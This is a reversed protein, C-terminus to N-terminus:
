GRALLGGLSELAATVGLCSGVGLAALALAFESSWRAMTSPYGDDSPCPSPSRARQPSLAGTRCCPSRSRSAACPSESGPQKSATPTCCPSLLNQMCFVPSEEPVNCVGRGAEEAVRVEGQGDLDLPPLDPLTSGRSVMSGLRPSLLPSSLPSSLLMDHFSSSSASPVLRGMGGPSLSQSGWRLRCIAAGPLVFMYAVAGFGIGVGVIASISPFACCIGAPAGVLLAMVALHGPLSTGRLADSLPVPLTEILHGKLAHVNLPTSVTLSCAVLAQALLASADGRPYASLINEPTSVGHTLFGCAGVLAYLLSVSTISRLVVKNVRQAKACHLEKYIPVALHHCTMANVALTWARPLSRLGGDGFRLLDMAMPAPAGDAMDPPLGEGAIDSSADQSSGFGRVLILVLVCFLGLPAVVAVHRLFSIDRRVCVPFVAAVAILQVPATDCLPPPLMCRILEALCKLHGGTGLLLMFTTIHSLGAGASPGLVAAISAPYSDRGTLYVLSIIFRLSQAASYAGFSLCLLGLPVGVLRFMYPLLLAGPGIAASMLTFICGRLSGREMPRLTRGLWSRPKGGGGRGGPLPPVAVAAPTARNGRSLGTREM